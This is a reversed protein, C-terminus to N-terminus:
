ENMKTYGLNIPLSAVEQEGFLPTAEGGKAPDIAYAPRSNGRESPSEDIEAGWAAAIMKMQRNQREITAEYLELLEDLSLSEELDIFNKWAGCEAFVEREYEILPLDDFTV